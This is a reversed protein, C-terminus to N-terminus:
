ALKKTVIPSILKVVPLPVYKFYKRLPKYATSFDLEPIQNSRILAYYYPLKLSKAGWNSKYDLLNKQFPSTLGFDLEAYGMKSTKRIAEDILLTGPSFRVYDQDSAGYAYVAQKKFFLLVMGAIIKSKHVAVLLKFNEGFTKYMEHFLAYPQPIMNHKNRYLKVLIDYFQKLESEDRFERLIVKEKEANRKLTRLNKKLRPYYNKEPNSELKLNSIFHHENEQINLQSILEPNFKELAKLEVYRVNEKKGVNIIHDILEKGTEEDDFLPPNYFNFPTSVIKKGFLGKTLFSCLIGKTKGNEIALFYYPKFKYVKQVINKWELTHFVIAKKNAQIYHNWKENYEDTLSIIKM